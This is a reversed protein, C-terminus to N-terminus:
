LRSARARRISKRLRYKSPLDFLVRQNSFDIAVRDFIKLHQMGLSLVPTDRLGLADFAPTDAFAIPMNRMSLGQVTMEEVIAWDGRLVVGNVDTATLEEARRAKIRRLLATNGLSTQAGTDIIVTARVGEIKANTILLQGLKQRARVIIEFGRNSPKDAGDAVAITENRFDILVRMDQLTDLGIIGDAGVHERQLVPATLNYVIRSGFGLEELEVLDVSRTSAMGILTATGLPALDLQDNIGHTVATAQSGTDIMFNYPGSGDITVPITLRQNADTDLDLVETQQDGLNPGIAGGAAQEKLPEVAATTMALALASPLWIVNM